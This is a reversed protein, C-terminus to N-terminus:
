RQRGPGLGRHGGRHGAAQPQLAPLGRAPDRLGARRRGAAPGHARGQGARHGGAVGHGSAHQPGARRAALARRRQGRRGRRGRRGRLGAALSEPSAFASPETSYNNLAGIRRARTPCRAGVALQPRPTAHACTPSTTRGGSRPRAHRRRAAPRRGPRRGHVPRLGHEYQLEDAALAMEGHYAATFAKENRLLTISSAEAGPIGQAAIRTVDRLVDDLTRDVLVVRSLERLVTRWAACHAGHRDASGARRRAGRRWRDPHSGAPCPARAGGAIRVRPPPSPRRSPRSGAGHGRRPRARGDGGDGAVDPVPLELRHVDDGADAAVEPGPDRVRRDGGARGLVGAVAQQEDELLQGGVRQPVAAAVHAGQDDGPGPPQSSSRLSSAGSRGGTGATSRSGASPRSPAAGPRGARSRTRSPSAGRGCARRPAAARRARAVAGLPRWRSWSGSGRAGSCGGPSLSPGGGRSAAVATRFATPTAGAREAMPALVSRRRSPRRHRGAAPTRGGAGASAGAARVLPGRWWRWCRARGAPGGILLLTPLPVGEVRPLPVVDDLQFFGLVVLALLWLAGALAVLALLWQLGGVARQWLPVRDPGLDTGAVARDLRDALREERCRSPAACTTGGRRPCGRARARRAGPPAGDRVGAREVPGAPPLSTRAASTAWTCGPAASRAPAEADLAAAALRHPRHRGAVASREVAATVAPM